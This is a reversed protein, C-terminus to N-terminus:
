KEPLGIKKLLAQFRPDDRLFDFSPEGALYIVYKFREQYSKELWELTREGDGLRAYVLAKNFAPNYRSRAMADHIALLGRLFNERGGSRYAQELAPPIKEDIGLLKWCKLEAAFSEDPKQLKEYAIALCVYAFPFNPNEDITKQCQAIAGVYDRKYYLALGVVTQVIPSLPDLEQAKKIQREAEDFRRMATLLESYWQRATPYNPSLEIARRYEREAEAFNWDYEALVYALTTHAEALNPDIELARTAAAKAKPFTEVPPAANYESLLAYADALGAYALAYTPDRDLATKFYEISEKLGATTRKNWSYRGRLYLQFAEADNTSRRTLTARDEDSIKLSLAEVIQSSISDQIKLSDAAAEDFKGAWLITGDNAKVLQVSVSWHEADHRIIGELITEVNLKEGVAQPSSSKEIFPLVASTPRVALGRVNGLRTILSDTLGISLSEDDNNKNFDKFPLVAITRPPPSPAPNSVPEALNQASRNENRPRWFSNALALGLGVILVTIVVFAFPRRKVHRSFVPSRGDPPSPIAIGSNQEITIDTKTHKEIVFAGGTSERVDAVFRYGRRPVTEIFRRDQSAEGFARRLMSITVALNNEDVYTDRWLSEVLEEKSVLAGRREVLITLLEIAKHTLNVREAERWLTGESANLRYEGFEYILPRERVDKM